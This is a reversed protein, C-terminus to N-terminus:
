IALKTYISTTSAQLDLSLAYDERNLDGCRPDDALVTLRILYKVASIPNATGIGGFEEVCTDPLGM